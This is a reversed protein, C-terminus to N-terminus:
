RSVNLDPPASQSVPQDGAAPSPEAAVPASHVVAAPPPDANMLRFVFSSVTM